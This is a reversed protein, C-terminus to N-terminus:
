CAKRDDGAQLSLTHIEDGRAEYPAHKGIGADCVLRYSSMGTRDSSRTVAAVNTFFGLITALKQSIM